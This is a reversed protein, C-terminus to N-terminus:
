ILLIGEDINGLRSSSFDESSFLYFSKLDYSEARIRMGYFLTGPRFKARKYWLIM